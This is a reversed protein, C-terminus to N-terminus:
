IMGWFFHSVRKLRANEKSLSINETSLTQSENKLADRNSVLNSITQNLSEKRKENASIEAKQLEIEEIAPKAEEIRTLYDNLQIEANDIEKELVEIKENKAVYLDAMQKDFTERELAFNM